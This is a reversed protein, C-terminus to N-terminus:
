TTFHGEEVMERVVERTIELTREIDEENHAYSISGQKVPVPFHYIGRAILRRRYEADADFDHHGALDHWDRPAHDMFYVCFASGQRSVSAVVGHEAFVEELGDQMLAGLRELRRYVAGDDAALKEITAIAAATPIPHANYTGAILVREDEDPHIFYDMIDARGGIVGLPFGNAVAKGFVSLDPRVGAISQYGGLAYRFGTKVEDFILLTGHKDCVERLQQLYDDTPMVLGINQLIPELIVAAIDYKSLVYDVSAIDNFNVAHVHDLAGAPVGATIPVIPYEGPSTREGVRELPTMLNVAVDNHWGNYGGQMVVIGDRGTYARALRIAHYTGESGTNTLQVKDVSAVHQVVLEALRGEWENTGSGMLTFGDEFSRHVAGNVDPDNHGLVFAAFGAHYDIYEHGDVSYVRSGKGKDFAIEPQVLRNLSVVGGPIFRRNREFLQKSRSHQSGLLIHRRSGTTRSYQDTQRLLRDFNM